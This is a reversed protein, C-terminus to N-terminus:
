LRSASYTLDDESRLAGGDVAVSPRVAPPPVPLVTLIMWEPRAEDLSCGMIKLDEDPIKKLIVHAASAPLNKRDETKLAKGDDEDEHTKQSVLLIKLGDRRIAPQTHGCGHHQPKQIPQGFEDTQAPEDPNEPEDPQCVRITQLQGFGM